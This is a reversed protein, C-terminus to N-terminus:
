ILLLYVKEIESEEIKLDRLIAYAIEIPVSHFAENSELIDKIVKHKKVLQKDHVNEKIINNNREILNNIM